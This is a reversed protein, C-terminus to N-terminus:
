VDEKPEYKYYRMMREGDKILHVVFGDKREFLSLYTNNGLPFNQVADVINFTNKLYKKIDKSRSINTLYAEIQAIKNADKQNNDSQRQAENIQISYLDKKLDM